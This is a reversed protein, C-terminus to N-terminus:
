EPPLETMALKLDIGRGRSYLRSVVYVVPGLSFTVILTTVSIATYGGSIQDHTATVIIIAGLMLTSLAGLVTIVPIGGWSGGLIKPSAEYLDRRRYPLLTAGLSTLWFAIVFILIENRAINTLATTYSGLYVFPISLVVATIIAYVPSHTRRSVDALKTPLLRDFSMAFILRSTIFMYAIVQILAAAGFGIGCVIKSVPDSAILLWFEQGQPLVPSLSEYKAPANTSLYASSRLFSFGAVNKLALWMAVCVLIALLLSGVVARVITTGARKVEGGPYVAFTFGVYVLICLPIALWYESFATTPPQGAAAAGKQVADFAGPSSAANYANVFGTHSTTLFYVIFLIVAILTALFGYFIARTAVRAGGISVAGAIVVAIMAIIFSGTQTSITEVFEGFAGISLADGAARLFFPFTVQAFFLAGFGISLFFAVLFAGGVLAGVAPHVVRSMFVYDGGSRPMAAVLQSYVLGLVLSIFGAALLPFVLEVRPLTGLLTAGFIYVTVPAVIILNIALADKLGIERVLGSSKRAFLEPHTGAPASDARPTTVADQSM